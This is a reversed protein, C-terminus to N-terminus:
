GSFVQAPLQRHSFAYTCRVTQSNGIPSQSARGQGIPGTSRAPRSAVQRFTWLQSPGDRLSPKVTATPKLGRNASLGFQYQTACRRRFDAFAQM